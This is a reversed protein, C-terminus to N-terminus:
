VCLANNVRPLMFSALVGTGLEVRGATGGGWDQRGKGSPLYQSEKVRSALPVSLLAIAPQQSGGEEPLCLRSAPQCSAAAAMGSPDLFCLRDQSDSAQGKAKTQVGNGLGRPKEEHEPQGAM